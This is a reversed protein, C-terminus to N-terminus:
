RGLRHHRARGGDSESGRRAARAELALPAAPANDRAGREGGGCRGRHGRALGVLGHLGIALPVLGLLGVVASSFEFLVAAAAASVAVLVAFGFAQGAAIRHARECPRAPWWPWSWSATTSTPGSSRRRPSASTPGWGPPCPGDARAPLPMAPGFPKDGRLTVRHAYRAATGYDDLAYHLTARNDWFAVSGARWRFRCTYEPKVCHHYLMELIANSENDSLGFLTRTFQRNVFLGNRGTEPHTRVVPHLAPLLKDRWTGDWEYGGREAVDAAFWPDHHIAILQDCMARVPPALGDYADQLSAWMTDGGVEPSELMYLISGMAPTELFTVDTHWWSARDVKGDIALVEPSEDISPLVPHAETVIGFQRAFAAQQEATLSQDRFFVVHHTNLADRIAGVVDPTLPQAIDVGAIEAGITPSLPHVSVSTALTM